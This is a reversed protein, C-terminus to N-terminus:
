AEGDWYDLNDGSRAIAVFDHAAFGTRVLYKGSDPYECIEPYEMTSVALFILECDGTNRLQHATGVDGPPCAIVDGARVPYRQDGLQLEGVGEIVYFMEENVRHSHCPFAAKSPAIVSLNYGLKQAGILTSISGIRGGFRTEPMTAGRQRAREALDITPVDAINLIPSTM